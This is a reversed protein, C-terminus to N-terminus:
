KKDAKKVPAPRDDPRTSGSPPMQNSQNVTTNNVNTATPTDKNLENRMQTNQQSAQNLQTGTQNQMELALREEELFRKKVSQQVAVTSSEFKTSRNKYVNSIITKPDADIGGADDISQKFIGLAGSYGTTGDKKKFKGGPGHQVVTSFFVDKIAPSQQEVDYGTLKFLNKSAPKFQSDEIFDHQLKEFSSGKEASIKKWEDVFPGKNSGTDAPGASKLRSVIDTEGKSEAFKLFAGMTGVKAAIQYTGYSTGGTSDWGVM